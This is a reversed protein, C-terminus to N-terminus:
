EAEEQFFSHNTKLKGIFSKAERELAEDDLVKEENV